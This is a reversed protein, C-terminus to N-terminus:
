GQEKTHADRASYMRWFAEETEELPAVWATPPDSALEPWYARVAAEAMAMYDPLFPENCDRYRGNFEGRQVVWQANSTPVADLDDGNAAAIARAAAEVRKPDIPM